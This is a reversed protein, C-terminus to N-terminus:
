CINNRTIHPTCVYKESKESYTQQKVNNESTPRNTEQNRETKINKSTPQKKQKQLEPKSM